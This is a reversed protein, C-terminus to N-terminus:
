CGCDEWNPCNECCPDGREDRNWSYKWTYNGCCPCIEFGAEKLIENLQWRNLGFQLQAFDFGDPYQEVVRVIEAQSM